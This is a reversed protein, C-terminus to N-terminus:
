PKTIRSADAIADGILFLTESKSPSRLVSKETNVGDVLVQVTAAVGRKVDREFGPLVRVVALVEGADLLRQVDAEATIDHTM